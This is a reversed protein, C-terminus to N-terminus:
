KNVEVKINNVNLIKETSQSNFQVTGKASVPPIFGIMVGLENKNEDLLTITVVTNENKDESSNNKVNGVLKTGNDYTIKYDIITFEDINKDKNKSISMIVIIGIIILIIVFVGLVINIKGRNKAM